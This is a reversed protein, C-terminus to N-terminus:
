DPPSSPPRGARSSWRGSTAEPTLDVPRGGVTALILLPVAAAAAALLHGAPATPAM